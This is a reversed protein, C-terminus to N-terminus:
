KKDINGVVTEIKSYLSVVGKKIILVGNIPIGAEHLAIIDEASAYTINGVCDALKYKVSDKAIVKQVVTFSEPEDPGGGAQGINVFPKYLRVAGNGIYLGVFPKDGLRAIDRLKMFGSKDLQTDYFVYGDRKGDERKVVSIPVLM